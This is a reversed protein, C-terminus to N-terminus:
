DSTFDVLNFMVKRAGVNNTAELQVVGLGIANLYDPDAGLSILHARVAQARALSLRQNFAATGSADSAGMIILGVNLQLQKAISLVGDLEQKLSNLKERAPATLESKGPEFEIQSADITAAHWNFIAKLAQPRGVDPTAMVTLQATMQTPDTLGPIASLESLLRQRQAGSIEGILYLQQASQQLSITPYRSVLQEIRRQVIPPELSLYPKEDVKVRDSDIAQQALWATVDRSQPDRLVRVHVDNLGSAEASRLVIGPESDISKIQRVLQQQEFANYAWFLIGTLLLAFLAIALWPRRKETAPKKLQELLCEQLEPTTNAFTDTEGKFTDIQRAYLRHINENTIQLHDSVRAPANGTVAAVLMLSPGRQILLTVNDTKVSELQQEEETESRTFSDGVFDNIATLMGSVMDADAYPSGHKSVSNLLIGTRADILFVQEVQFAFTQSAVYQSFPVGSRRANYRWVLGKYSLSNELIQNTKELFESLFSAVSKRVLKGVIPYIYGVFQDSHQSISKEVSREVLPVFVNSLGEDQQQRDHLAEIVVAGVIKRAHGEIVDLVFERDQGLVINRVARLQQEDDLEHAPKM